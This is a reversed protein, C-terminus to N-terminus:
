SDEEENAFFLEIEGSCSGKTHMHCSGIEPTFRHPIGLADLWCRIRYLVGCEYQDIVGLRKVGTYAFCKNPAFAWVMKNDEPYGFEVNMFEPIMLTAAGEFFEKFANFNKSPDTCNLTKQVRQIEMSSMSKIASKNIRNTAEIGFERLCHFFWMGDHTMWCKNLLAVTETQEISRADKM